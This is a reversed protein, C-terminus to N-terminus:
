VLRPQPPDSLAQEMQDCLSDLDTDATVEGAGMSRLTDWGDRFPGEPWPVAYLLRRCRLAHRATVISGCEAHAQVVVVAMSLAAQIRDRALLLSRQVETDPPVEAVLAGRGAIKGALVSNEPPYVRLLGCGLVAITRGQPAALAGQHGATDIGQALGSVVTYGRRAFEEGLKHALAAGHLTPARTGVVAVAKADRTVLSGSLYLLPPPTRLDLLSAPYGEDGIAVLDVGQARWAQVRSRLAAEDDGMSKVWRVQEPSLRGRAALEGAPAEVAQRPSGFARALRLMASAGIGPVQQLAAWWM